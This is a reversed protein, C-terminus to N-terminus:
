RLALTVAAWNDSASATFSGPNESGASLQRSAVGVTVQNASQSLFDSYGSPGCTLAVTDRHAAAAVWLSPASGWTPGLADPDPAASTGTVGTSAEIGTSGGVRHTLM